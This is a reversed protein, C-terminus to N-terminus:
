FLMQQQNRCRIQSLWIGIMRVLYMQELAGRTKLLLSTRTETSKWPEHRLLYNAFDNKTMKRREPAVPTAPTAPTSPPSEM